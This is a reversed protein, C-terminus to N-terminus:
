FLIAFPTFEATFMLRLQAATTDQMCFILRLLNINGIAQKFKM